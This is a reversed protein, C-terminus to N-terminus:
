VPTWSNDYPPEDDEGDEQYHQSNETVRTITFKQGCGSCAVQKSSPGIGVDTKCVPCDFQDAENLSAQLHIPPKTQIQGNKNQILPGADAGRAMIGQAFAIGLQQPISALQNAKQEELRLKEEDRKNQAALQQLKIDWERQDRKVERDYRRRDMEMTHQLQTFAMKGNWDETVPDSKSFGLQKAMAEIGQIQELIGPQNQNKKLTEMLISIQTQLNQEVAKLEATHLQSQTERLDKSAADLRDQMEKRNQDAQQQALRTQEQFDLKGLSVEGTIKVPPEPAADPETIQRTLRQEEAIRRRASAEAAEDELRKLGPSKTEQGTGLNLPKIQPPFQMKSGM